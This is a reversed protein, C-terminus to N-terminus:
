SVGTNALQVLEVKEEGWRALQRDHARHQRMSDARRLQGCPNICGDALMAADWVTCCLVLQWDCSAVGLQNGSALITSTSMIITWVSAINTTMTMTSVIITLM